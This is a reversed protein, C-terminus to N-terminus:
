AFAWAVIGPEDDSPKPLIKRPRASRHQRTGLRRRALVHTTRVIERVTHAIARAAVRAHGRAAAFMVASAIELYFVTDGAFMFAFDLSGIRALVGAVLLIAFFIVIRRLTLKELSAIPATVFTWWLLDGLACPWDITLKRWLDM